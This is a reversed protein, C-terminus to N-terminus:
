TGTSITQTRSRKKGRVPDNKKRSIKLVKLNYHVTSRKSGLKEAYEDLYLDPEAEVLKKLQQRDLKNADKPGTKDAALNEGRGLWRKITTIGVKFLNAAMQQTGEATRVFDVVRKRLDLSYAVIFGELEVYVFFINYVL